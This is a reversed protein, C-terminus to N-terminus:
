GSSVPISAAEEARASDGTLYDIAIGPQANYAYVCFRLGVGGDEVSRAEMLVGRAVLEDGQFVPTVRYLVHNGTKEVYSAVKNEFPLMGKMNLSRTGTILNRPESNQGTLQYGILHCRNYLYKGEILDDYRVTHWGSPKYQGLGEREQTPMLEQGVCAYAPGCRGLGDLESYREFGQDTLEAEEFYPANGNVEVWPEGQFDPIADLAFPASVPDVASVPASPIQTPQSLEPVNPALYVYVAVLLMALVTLLRKFQKM